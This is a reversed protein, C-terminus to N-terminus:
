RQAFTLCIHSVFGFMLVILDTHRLSLVIATV